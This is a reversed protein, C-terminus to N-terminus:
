WLRVKMACQRENDDLCLGSIVSISSLLVHFRLGGMWGEM